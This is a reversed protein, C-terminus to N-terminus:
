RKTYTKGDPGIYRTGAPLADREEKSKVQVPGSAPAPAGSAKPGPATPGAGTPPAAQEWYRQASPGAAAAMSKEMLDLLKLKNDRAEPSDWPMPIYLGTFQKWEDNSIAAGSEKRLLAAVLNRAANFYRSGPESAAEQPVLSSIPGSQAGMAAADKRGGMGEPFGAEAM